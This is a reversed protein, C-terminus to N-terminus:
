EWQVMWSTPTVLSVTLVQWILVTLATVDDDHPDLTGQETALTADNDILDILSYHHTKFEADLTELKTSLCQALDHTTPEEINRELEKIKSGLCTISAWVVGRKKRQTSIAHSDTEPM